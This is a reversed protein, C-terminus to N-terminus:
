IRKLLERIRNKLAKIVAKVYKDALDTDLKPLGKNKEYIIISGPAPWVEIGREYLYVEENFDYKKVFKPMKALIFATEDLGGHGGPEGYIEETINRTYIWWHVVISKIRNELWLDNMADRISTVNGGHGNIIVFKQFGHAHYVRIIEKLLNRLTAGSVSTSGKYRLLTQTIGYYVTPAILAKISEAIEEAIIEPILADTGLPLHPGHAEITGVPIILNTYGKKILMDVDKYTLYLLKLEM